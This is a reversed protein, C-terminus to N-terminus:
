SLMNEYFPRMRKLSTEIHSRMAAEAEAANGECITVAIDMHEKVADGAVTSHYRLRFLHMHTHLRGLIEPIVDNRCSEAIKKHFKRDILAFKSYNGEPNAAILDEMDKALRLLDARQEKTAHEAAGAAAAPELLHRIEYIDRFRSASHEATIRYGTNHKKEVLGEAVLRILAARIPTQSVGFLRVLGDVSLREAPTFRLSIIETLLKEYVEDGM